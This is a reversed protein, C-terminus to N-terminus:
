WNWWARPNVNSLGSRFSNLIGCIRRRSLLFIRLRKMREPIESAPQSELIYAGVYTYRDWLEAVIELPRVSDRYESHDFIQAEIVGLFQEGLRSVKLDALYRRVASKVVEAVKALRVFDAESFWRWALLNFLQDFIFFDALKVQVSKKIQLFCRMICLFTQM